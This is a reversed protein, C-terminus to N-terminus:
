RTFTRDSIPANEQSEGGRLSELSQTKLGFDEPTLTFYDIKGNKIEAVQTEGHVAVEDLGAGHVVFTHQHDLAVATEAYTKVLEPAYM